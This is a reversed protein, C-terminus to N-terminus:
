LTAAEEAISPSLPDDTEPEEDIDAPGIVVVAAPSKIYWYPCLTCVGSVPDLTVRNEGPDPNESKDASTKIPVTACYETWDLAPCILGVRVIDPTVSAKLVIAIASL